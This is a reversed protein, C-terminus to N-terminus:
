NVGLCMLNVRSFFSDVRSGILNVRSFMSVVRSVDADVRFAVSGVRFVESFLRLGLWIFRPLVQWAYFLPPKEGTLVRFLGLLKV